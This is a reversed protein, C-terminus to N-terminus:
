KEQTIAKTKPPSQPSTAKHLKWLEEEKVQEPLRAGTDFVDKTKM